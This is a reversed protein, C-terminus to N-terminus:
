LENLLTKIEEYQADHLTVPTTLMKAIGRQPIALNGTKAYNIWSRLAETRDYKFYAGTASITTLSHARYLDYAFIAEAYAFKQNNLAFKAAQQRAFNQLAAFEPDSIKKGNKLMEVTKCWFKIMKTLMVDSVATGNVANVLNFYLKSYELANKSDYRMETLLAFAASRLIRLQPQKLELLKGDTCELPYAPIEGAVLKNLEAFVAANKAFAEQRKQLDEASPEVFKKNKGRKGWASQNTKRTLDNLKNYFDADAKRGNMYLKKLGDASLEGAFVKEAEAKTAELIKGQMKDAAVTAIVSLITVSWIAVTVPKRMVSRLSWDGNGLMKGRAFLGALALIGCIMLVMDCRFSTGAFEWEGLLLAKLLLALLVTSCLAAFEGIGAVIGLGVTKGDKRGCIMLPITIFLVPLAWVCLILALTIIATAGALYLWQRVPKDAYKSQFWSGMFTIFYFAWLMATLLSYWIFLTNSAILKEPIWAAAALTLLFLVWSATLALQGFIFSKCRMSANETLDSMKEETTFIKRFANICYCM